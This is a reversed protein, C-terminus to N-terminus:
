GTPVPLEGTELLEIAEWEDDVERLTVNPPLLEVKRGPVAELLGDDVGPSTTVPLMVKSGPWAIVVLPVVYRYLLPVSYTLPLVVGSGVLVEVLLWVSGTVEVM